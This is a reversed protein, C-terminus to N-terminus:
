LPPTTPAVPHTTHSGNPPTNRFPIPEMIPLSLQIPTKNLIKNSDASGPNSETEDPEM